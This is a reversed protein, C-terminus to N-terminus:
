VSYSALGVWFYSGGDELCPEARLWTSHRVVCKENETERQLM